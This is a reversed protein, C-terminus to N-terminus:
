IVVHAGILIKSTILHPMPLFTQSVHALFNQEICYGSFM